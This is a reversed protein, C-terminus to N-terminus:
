CRRPSRPSRDLAGSILSSCASLKGAASADARVARPVDGRPDGRSASGPTPRPGPRDEVMGRRAEEHRRACAGPRAARRPYRALEPLDTRKMSRLDLKDEQPALRRGFLSLKGLTTTGLARPPHAICARFGAVVRPAPVLDPAGLLVAASPTGQEKLDFIWGGDPGGHGEILVAIRLGGLSGTGAIRLAADVIALSCKPGPAEDPLLTAIYATFADKVHDHVDKDLDAYRGSGRVFRLKGGVTETRDKLLSARSQGRVKEVLAAIPAPAEPLKAGDFAAHSWSELLADALDLALVGSAGLERGGLLLSTTLRLVDLRWPGVLADDFDNLDFVASRKKASDDDLSDPRYAGFNELHLDGVLWGEGQPGEALEPHEALLEYFLPAAGRLFALPSASMRGLKRALLAPFRRTRTTDSALQKAALEDAIGLPASAKAM